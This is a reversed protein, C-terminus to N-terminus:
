SGSTTQVTPLEPHEGAWELADYLIFFSFAAFGGVLGPYIFVWPSSRVYTFGESLLLGLSSNSPAEFGLFDLTELLLMAAGTTLAAAPVLRMVTGTLSGPPIRRGMLSIPLAGLFGLTLILEYPLFWSQVNYGILGWQLLVPVNVALVICTVLAVLLSIPRSRVSLWALVSGAFLGVLAVGLSTGLDSSLGHLTESFVDIGSPETGLPHAPNVFAPLNTCGQFLCQFSRSPYPAAVAGWVALLFTIGVAILAVRVKTSKLRVRFDPRPPKPGEPKLSSGAAYWLVAFFLGLLGLAAWADSLVLVDLVHFAQVIGYGLGPWSFVTEVSVALSLLLALVAGSWPISRGFASKLGANSSGPRSMKLSFLAFSTMSVTTLPLVLHVLLDATQNGGYYPPYVSHEGFSPFLGLVLSFWYILLMGVYFTPLSILAMTVVRFFYGHRRAGMTGWPVGIVAGVITAPILLTLTSEMWSSVTPGSPTGYIGPGLTGTLVGALWGEYGMSNLKLIAELQQPTPNKIGLRLVNVLNTSFIEWYIIVTVAFFGGV